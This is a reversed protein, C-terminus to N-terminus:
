RLKSMVRTLGEKTETAHRRTMRAVRILGWLIVGNMVALLLVSLIQTVVFVSASYRQVWGLAWEWWTM